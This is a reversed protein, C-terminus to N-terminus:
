STHNKIAEIIHKYIFKVVSETGLGIAGMAQLSSGNQLLSLFSERWIEVEVCPTQTSDVGMAEQFRNFLQPHPIEQVWEDKIGLKRIAELDQDHLHGNEEALNKLLHNRHTPNELKSIVATLYRSFWDSYAGYQSAFDKLVEDTHQFEGKELALLYPHNIARHSLAEKILNEM